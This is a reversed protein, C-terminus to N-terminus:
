AFFKRGLWSEIEYSTDMWPQLKLAAALLFLSGLGTLSLLKTTKM